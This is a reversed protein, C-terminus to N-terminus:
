VFVKQLFITVSASPIEAMGDQPNRIQVSASWRALGPGYVSGDRVREVVGDAEIIVECEDLKARCDTEAICDPGEAHVVSQVRRRTGLVTVHRAPPVGSCFTIM